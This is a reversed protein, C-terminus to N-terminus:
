PIYIQIPNKLNVSQQNMLYHSTAISDVVTITNTRAHLGGGCVCRGVGVGGWVWVEECGCGSCGEGWVGM